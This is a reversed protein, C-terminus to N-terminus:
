RDARDAGGPARRAAVHAAAVDAGQRRVVPLVRRVAAGAGHLALPVQYWEVISFTESVNYLYILAVLMLLSGLLTYLFFKIAAYVRNPGGWVGIILYMPILMAEFFVYFLMGDLACFAGNILGSQILFAAMYQAVRMQIAEWASWVVFLTMLSNLLVFPMSIGDVGVFYHIDFRPIWEGREVFQMDSTGPKFQFWLPLTVLFTVLRASLRSGVRSDARRSGPRRVARGAPSSRSGSPLHSIRCQEQRRTLSIRVYWLLLFAFVGIIMTFAYHYVYGSQMYRLLASSWGIVKATGNVFFGDIITADGVDPPVRRRPARRRRLVLRQLPRLLVQQRAFAYVPGAAKAIRAPLAPNGLYLYWASAIGALALWFPLSALGHEIFAGVGHWEERFGPMAPHEALVVISSGFFDGFLMPQVFMWGAAGVSDRAPRAPRHGGRAKGPRDTTATTGDDQAHAASEFRPKGHFTMFLLRFTYFATVFVGAVVIFYALWHGPMTSSHVAEIIADKSFFGAFPPIGCLALAGM